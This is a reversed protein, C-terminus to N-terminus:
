EKSIRQIVEADFLSVMGHQGELQSWKVGTLRRADRPDVQFICHSQQRMFAHYLEHSETTVAAAFHHMLHWIDLRFSFYVYLMVSRRPTRLSM